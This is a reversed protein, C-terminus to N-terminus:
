IEALTLRQRWMHELLLSYLSNFLLGSGDKNNSNNKNNIVILYM